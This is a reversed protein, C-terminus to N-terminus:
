HEATLKLPLWERKAGLALVAQVTAYDLPRVRGNNVIDRTTSYSLGMKRAAGDVSGCEKKFFALLRKQGETPPLRKAKQQATRKTVM